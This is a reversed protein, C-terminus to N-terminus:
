SFKVATHAGPTRAGEASILQPGEVNIGGSIACGDQMRAPMDLHLEDPTDAFAVSKHSSPM